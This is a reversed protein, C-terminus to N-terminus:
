ADALFPVLLELLRGPQDLPVIHGSEPLTRSTLRDAIPALQGATARGVVKAGIAMTPMTLRLTQVALAIRAANAPLARYHEFACRLSDHGTYAAIFAERTAADVGTGDATGAKLFFDIYEAENGDVVTEALGPVGHFGFWWPAGARFFGEAGPLRGIAAEMLVLRSVRDPHELALLFAIPAGLDLAVVSATPEGLSDLLGLMDAALAGVDYGNQERVSAGLGRLDPAIVRHRKALTPIVEHWVRWTHPFGHMLLVPSGTGAVAVNLTTGNTEVAVQEVIGSM